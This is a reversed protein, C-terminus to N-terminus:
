VGEAGEADESDQITYRTSFALNVADVEATDFRHFEEPRITVCSGQEDGLASFLSGQKFNVYHFMM